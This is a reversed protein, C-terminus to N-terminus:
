ARPRGALVFHWRQGPHREVVFGARELEAAAEDESYLIEEPPGLPREPERGREWDAVLLLGDPHLLRRMEELAREGYVEHLLNVALVRDATGDPEPVRNSVIGVVEVHAEAASIRERLRAVMEESEDVAIVRGGAGLAARAAIALRGTGAGYDIVTEEGDLGLLAVLPADPLYSDREPADLRDARAPDFKREPGREELESV